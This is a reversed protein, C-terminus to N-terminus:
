NRHISVPSLLLEHCPHSGFRRESLTPSDPDDRQPAPLVVDRGSVEIGAPNGVVWTRSATPLPGRM